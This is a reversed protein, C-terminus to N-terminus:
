VQTMGGDVVLEVDSATTREDGREQLHVM